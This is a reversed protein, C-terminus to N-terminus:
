KNNYWKLIADVTANIVSYAIPSSTLLPHTGIQLADIEMDTMRNQIIVSYMNILEGVSEGGKVQAGLLIHSYRAYILKTYIKTAGPLKGPHRNVTENIGVVYDIGISKAKAETLGSVGFATNGIKTSFTGLTGPFVKLVKINYLNSGALRGQAMATSALMISSYKGTFSCRKRACDGVAFINDRSTRLYEDVKIGYKEDVELDFKKAVDVNPRYGAAVIVIDASISDGNELLVAEVSENGKIEKVRSNLLIRLGESQLIEAAMDGFEKDMAAPLLSEEMEIITVDKGIKLLEDAIEVGIFGGGIIVIKKANEIAEKMKRLYEIDKRVVWVGKKEIGKLPLVLPQSGTALVLKNFSVMEGSKLEINNGDSDMVEDVILDINNKQLPADPLINDEVKDLTGFMYPIGCPVLAVKEKRILAIKKDPYTNRVSIGATVGAPGGGIIVVDYSKM